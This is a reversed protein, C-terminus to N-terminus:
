LIKKGTLIKRVELMASYNPLIYFTEDQETLAIGTRLALEVNRFVEFNKYDEYQVRLAMDYVRDGSILIKNLHQIGTLDIDWIWSIDHGDPVRDNLVILLTKAKLNNITAFSQNFSTPNKSLFLQATKGKYTIIEQRGFAPKFDQMGQLIDKESLGIHKLVLATAHTNYQNYVGSLPYLPFQDLDAKPKSLTCSPCAWKGLHSFTKEKCILNNGCKPCYVADAAAQDSTPTKHSPIVGFYYVNSKKLIGMYAIQPDDANLVLKTKDTLSSITKQWKTTIANIEGYRDLQDRFLNMLVLYDPQIQQLLVPLINEDIEFIAYEQSLKGSSSANLVITSAIGNLLNAGSDNHLVTKGNKSLVTKILSATTTKGNTGAVVIIKTKSKELVQQIFHTNIKLAIHGPWTSGNGLRLKKVTGSLLKTFIILGSNM